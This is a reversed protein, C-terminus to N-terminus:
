KKGKSRISKRKNSSDFNDVQIHAENDFMAEAVANIAMANTTKGSNDNSGIITTNLGKLGNTLVDLNISNAKNTNDM